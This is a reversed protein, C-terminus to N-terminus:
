FPLKMGAPLNMGDTIKAMEEQQKIAAKIQGDKVAAIILDEVIEKDNPNFLTPDIELGILDGKANVRTKVMGAGSQGEVEITGLREQMEAMKSQMEKAQKMMKAMDGMGKLM